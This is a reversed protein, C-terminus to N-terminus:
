HKFGIVNTLSIIDVTSIFIVSTTPEVIRNPEEKPIKVFVAMKAINKLNLLELITLADLRSSLRMMINKRYM